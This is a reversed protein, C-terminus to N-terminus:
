RVKPRGLDQWLRYFVLAERRDAIDCGQNYHHKGQRHWWRRFAAFDQKAELGYWSDRRAISGGRLGRAQM